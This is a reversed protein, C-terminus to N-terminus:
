YDYKWLLGVGTENNETVESEAALTNTLDIRVRASGSNAAAGREVEVYVDETVYKGARATSQDLGEDSSQLDLTDLGLGTRLSDLGDFVSPGGRLTNAAAALRLGQGPTIESADRGFLLYSLVEDQPREPESTLTLEPM